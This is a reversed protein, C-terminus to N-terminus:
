QWCPMKPPACIRCLPLKSKLKKEQPLRTHCSVPRPFPHTRMRRQEDKVKENAAKRGKKRQAKDRKRQIAAQEDAIRLAEADAEAKAVAARELKERKCDAEDDTAQQDAKQESGEDEGPGEEEQSGPEPVVGNEIDDLEQAQKSRLAEEKEKLEKKAGKKKLQKVGYSSKLDKLEQKHRKKAQHVSEVM